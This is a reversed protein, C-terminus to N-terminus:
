ITTRVTSRATHPRAHSLVCPMKNPYCMAKPKPRYLGCVRARASGCVGRVCLCVYVVCVFVVCVGLVCWLFVCWVFVCWEMCGCVFVGCVCVVCVCVGCVYMCACVRYSKQPRTVLEDCLGSGSLVDNVLASFWAGPPCRVPMGLLTSAAFAHRLGRPWRSLCPLLRPIIQPM